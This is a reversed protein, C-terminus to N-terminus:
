AARGEIVETPPLSEYDNPWWDHHTEGLPSPTQLARGMDPSLDVRVISKKRTWPVSERARQLDGLDAFVSYAYAGCVDHKQYVDSTRTDLPLVWDQRELAAGIAASPKALRFFAGSPPECGAPPCGDPLRGDTAM